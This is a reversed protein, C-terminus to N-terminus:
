IVGFKALADKAIQEPSRPAKPRPSSGNAPAGSISTAPQRTQAPEAQPAPDPEAAPILRVATEYARSLREQPPLDDQIYGIQLLRIMEAEVEPEQARPHAAAFQDVLAQREALATQTRQEAITQETQRVGNTLEAVQKQLQAIVDDRPDHQPQQGNLQAIFARAGGPVYQQAMQLLAQVPNNSLAQEAEVYNKLAVDLSTGAKEAMERYPKLPADRAEIEAAKIKYETLGKELERQMRTVEHKVADPAADWEAKAGDNFREPASIKPKATKEAPAEAKGEAKADDAAVAKAEPKATEAKPEAKVDAKPEAKAKDESGKFKGDDNREQTTVNPKKLEAGDEDTGLVGVAGLARKIKDEQSMPVEPKGPAPASPAQQETVVNAPAETAQSVAETM